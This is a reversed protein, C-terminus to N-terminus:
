AQAPGVYPNFLLADVAIPTTATLTSKVNVSVYRKSGIYGISKTVNKNSGSTRPTGAAIGASAETGLLNNDAVSTMAATTDGEFVTVTYVAGTATITGYAVLFEVGGYGQRDIIVSSKGTGTTGIAVPSIARIPKISHHLDNNTSQM